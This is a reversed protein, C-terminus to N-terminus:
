KETFSVTLTKHIASGKGTAPLKRLSSRLKDKGGVTIREQFVVYTSDRREEQVEEETLEESPKDTEEGEEGESQHILAHFKQQSALLRAELSKLKSGAVKQDQVICRMRHRTEKDLEVLNRQLLREEKNINTQVHSPLQLTMGAKRQRAGKFSAM